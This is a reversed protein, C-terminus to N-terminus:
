LDREELKNNGWREEPGIPKNKELPGYEEPAISVENEDNPTFAPAFSLQAGDALQPGRWIELITLAGQPRFVLAAYDADKQYLYLARQGKRQFMRMQWNQAKLNNFMDLAITNANISCRLTELGEKSGNASTQLFSHSSYRQLGTPLNIDLLSSTTTDTGGTLPDNAFPNQIGM